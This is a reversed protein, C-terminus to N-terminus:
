SIFKGASVKDGLHRSAITLSILDPPCEALVGGFHVADAAAHVVRRVAPPGRLRRCPLPFLWLDRRGDPPATKM